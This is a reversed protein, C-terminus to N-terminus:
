NVCIDDSTINDFEHTIIIGTPKINNQLYELLESGENLYYYMQPVVFKSLDTRLVDLPISSTEEFKEIEMAYNQTLLYNDIRKIAKEDYSYIRRWEKISHRKGLYLIGTIACIPSSVYLYAKIPENPFVKRHEYIKIGSLLKSYVSPKFSLLMIKM